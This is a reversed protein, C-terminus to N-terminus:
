KIGSKDHFNNTVCNHSPNYVSFYLLSFIETPLKLKFIQPVLIFNANNKKIANTAINTFTALAASQVINNQCFSQFMCVIRKHLIGPFHCCNDLVRSNYFLRNWNQSLKEVKLSDKSFLIPKFNRMQRDEDSQMQNFKKKKM